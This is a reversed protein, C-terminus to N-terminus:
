ELVEKLQERLRELEQSIAITSVSGANFLRDYKAELKAIETKIEQAKKQKEDATMLNGKLM